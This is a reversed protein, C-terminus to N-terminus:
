PRPPYLGEMCIIYNMVMYPPMNRFPEGAGIVDETITQGSLEVDPTAETYGYSNDYGRGDPKGPAALISAVTPVSVTANATSAHARSNHKHPPLNRAELKTTEAGGLEGQYYTNGSMRSSGTGITAMGALNPLAFTTMGDGGYTTGLISFLSSYQAISLLQGQCLMWGKPAFGGAFIKIIGIYEDM